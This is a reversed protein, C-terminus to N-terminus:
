FKFGQFGKLLIRFMLTGFGRSDESETGHKRDDESCQGFSIGQPSTAAQRYIYIYTCIYIYVYMYIYIYVCMYTFIIIDM